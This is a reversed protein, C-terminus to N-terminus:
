KKEHYEEKDYGQNIEDISYKHHDLTISEKPHFHDGEVRAYNLLDEEQLYITLYQLVIEFHFM